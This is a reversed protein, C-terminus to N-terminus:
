LVHTLHPYVRAQGVILRLHISYKGDRKLNAKTLVETPKTLAEVVDKKKKEQMPIM